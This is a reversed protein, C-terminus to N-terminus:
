PQPRFIATVKANHAVSCTATGTCPGLWGAFVNGPAPEAVLTISPTAGGAEWTIRVSGSGAVGVSFDSFHAGVIINNSGATVACVPVSGVCAGSWWGFSAGPNPEASFTVVTGALVFADSPSVTIRGPGTSTASVGVNAFKASVTKEEGLSLSVTCAPETGTCANGWGVFGAIDRGYMATVKWDGAVSFSFTCGTPDSSFYCYHGWGSTPEVLVMAQPHSGMFVIKLHALTDTPLAAPVLVGGIVFAASVTAGRAPVTVTCTPGSAEACGGTWGKFTSGANPTATLTVTRSTPTSPRGVVIRASVNPLNESCDSPCDIGTGTVKGAGTVSVTLTQSAVPIAMTATLVAVALLSRSTM